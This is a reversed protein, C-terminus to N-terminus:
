DDIEEGYVKVRINNQVIVNDNHWIDMKKAEEWAKTFSNENLFSGISKSPKAHVQKFRKIRCPESCVQANVRFSQFRNGCEVCKHFPKDKPKNRSAYSINDDAYNFMKTM